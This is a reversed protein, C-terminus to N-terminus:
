QMLQDLRWIRAALTGVPFISEVAQRSLSGFDKAIPHGLPESLGFVKKGTKRGTKGILRFRSHITM